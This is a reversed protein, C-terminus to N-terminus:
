FGWLSSHGEGKPIHRALVSSQTGYLSMCGVFLHRPYPLSAIGFHLAALLSPQIYWLIWCLLSCLKLFRHNDYARNKPFTCYEVTICVSYWGDINARDCPLETTNSVQNRSKKIDLHGKVCCSTITNGEIDMAVPFYFNNRPVEVYACDKLMTFNKLSTIKALCM